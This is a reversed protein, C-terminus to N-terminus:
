CRDRRAVPLRASKWWPRSSTLAATGVATPWQREVFEGASPNVGITIITAAEVDGFFPIPHTVVGARTLARYKPASAALERELQAMHTELAESSRMSISRTRRVVKHLLGRLM